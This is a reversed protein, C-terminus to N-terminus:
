RRGQIIAASENMGSVGDGMYSKHISNSESIQKKFLWTEQLLMIDVDEKSLMEQTLFHIRETNLGTSNYSTLTLKEAMFSSHKPIKKACISMQDRSM